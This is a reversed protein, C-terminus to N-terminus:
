SVTRILSSRKYGTIRCQCGLLDRRGQCRRAPRTVPARRGRSLDGELLYGRSTATVVEPGIRGHALLDFEEAVRRREADDGKPRIEIEWLM